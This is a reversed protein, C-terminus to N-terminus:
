GGGKSEIEVDLSYLDVVEESTPTLLGEGIRRRIDQELDARLQEPNRVTAEDYYAAIRIDYKVCAM